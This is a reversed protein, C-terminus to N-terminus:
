ARKEAAILAVGYDRPGVIAEAQCLEWYHRSPAPRYCERTRVAFRESILCDLEKPAYIRQDREVRGTSHVPVTLVLLGGPKLLRAFEVVARYDGRDYVKSGYVDLGCHELASLSIVVDFSEASLQQELFDGLLVTLNPHRFGYPRLDIGVVYAGLHALWLPVLSEACGFDLIHRGCVDRLQQLVFPVEVIRENCDLVLWRRLVRTPLVSAAKLVAFVPWLLGGRPRWVMPQKTEVDFKFVGM